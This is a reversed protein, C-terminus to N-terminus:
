RRPDGRRPLRLVILSSLFAGLAGVTLWVAGKFEDAGQFTYPGLFLWRVMQVLVLLAYVPFAYPFIRTVALLITILGIAASWFLVDSLDKGSYPVMGLRLNYTGMAYTLGSLGLVFLALLAHYVYSYVLLAIRVIRM